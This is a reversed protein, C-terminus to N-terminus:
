LSTWLNLFFILAVDVFNNYVTQYLSCVGFELRTCFQKGIIVGRITIDTSLM